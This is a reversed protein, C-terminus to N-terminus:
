SYSNCDWTCTSSVGQTVLAQLTPPGPTPPHFALGPACWVGAAVACGDASTLFSPTPLERQIEEILALGATCWAGDAIAGGDASTLFSLTALEHQIEEILM